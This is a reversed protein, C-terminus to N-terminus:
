SLRRMTRINFSYGLYDTGLSPFCLRLRALRDSIQLWTTLWRAVLFINLISFIIALQLFAFKWANRSVQSGTDNLYFLFILFYFIYSIQLELSHFPLPASPVLLALYGLYLLLLIGISTIRFSNGQRSRLIFWVFGLLIFIVRSAIQVGAHARGIWEFTLLWLFLTPLGVRTLRRLFTESKIDTVNM